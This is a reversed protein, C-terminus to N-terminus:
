RPLTQSSAISHKVDSGFKSPYGTPKSYEPNKSGNSSRRPKRRYLRDLVHPDVGLHFAARLIWHTVLTRLFGDREWRRRSTLARSTLPRFVAVKRIQQVFAVDEFLPIARIGGTEEYASRTVFVAQDGTATLFRRTRWNVARELLRYRKEHAVPRVAFELCGAEIGSALAERIAKGAEEELWTDAHLFMLVNGTADEAGRKLQEGRSTAFPIVRTSQSILQTTRDQSGGDVVIIEVNPGLATEARRITEAIEEEEDLTPIIVSFKPGSIERDVNM